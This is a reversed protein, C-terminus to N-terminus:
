FLSKQTIESNEEPVDIEITPEDGSNHREIVLPKPAEGSEREKIIEDLLDTLDETFPEEVPLGVTVLSAILHPQQTASYKKAKSHPLDQNKTYVFRWEEQFAFINVALIDFEGYLLLTTELSSGDPLNVTRRDSADCQAKGTYVGDIQKISNTQLSKSEVIFTHGKYRIRLDGKNKRDHDDSKGLYEIGKNELNKKLQLEAVYGLVM